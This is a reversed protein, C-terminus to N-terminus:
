AYLGRSTASAARRAPVFYSAILIIPPLFAAHVFLDAPTWIYGALHPSACPPCIWMLPGSFYFANYVGGFFLRSGFLATAGGLAFAGCALWVRDVYANHFRFFRVGLFFVYFFYLYLIFHFGEFEAPHFASRLGFNKVIELKYLPNDRFLLAQSAIDTLVAALWLRRYLKAESAGPPRWEGAVQYRRTRTLLWCGFLVATWILADRLAIPDDVASLWLPAPLALALTISYYRKLFGVM